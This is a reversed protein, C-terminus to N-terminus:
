RVIQGNLTFSCHRKAGACWESVRIFSWGRAFLLNIIHYVTTRDSSQFDPDDGMELGDLNNREMITQAKETDTEALEEFLSDFSPPPAIERPTWM